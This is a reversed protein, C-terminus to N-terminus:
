YEKMLIVSNPTNKEELYEEYFKGKVKELTYLIDERGLESVKYNDYLYQLAKNLSKFYLSELGTWADTGAPRVQIDIYWLGRGLHPGVEMYTNGDACFVQMASGIGIRELIM